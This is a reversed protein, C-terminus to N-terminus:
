KKSNNFFFYYIIFFFKSLLMSIKKPMFNKLLKFILKHNNIKIYSKENTNIDIFNLRKFIPITKKNATSNVIFKNSKLYYELFLNISYSRYLQDVYWFSPCSIKFKLNKDSIYEIPINLITGKIKKKDILIYGKLDKDNFSPNREWFIILNRYIIHLTKKQTFNSSLYLALERYNNKDIKKIEM